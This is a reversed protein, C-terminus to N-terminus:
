GLHFMSYYCKGLVLECAIIISATYTSCISLPYQSLIQLIPIILGPRGSFQKALMTCSLVDVMLEKSQEEAAVSSNLAHHRATFSLHFLCPSIDSM